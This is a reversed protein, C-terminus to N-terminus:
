KGSDLLGNLKKRQQNKYSHEDRIFEDAFADIDKGIVEIVTKGSTAAAEFLDVLSIFPQIAILGSTNWVYKQIAKYATYYEGPLAKARKENAKYAKKEELGGIIANVLKNM